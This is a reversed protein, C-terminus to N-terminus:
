QAVCLRLNVNLSLSSVLFCLHENQMKVITEKKPPKLLRTKYEFQGNWNKAHVCQQKETHQM